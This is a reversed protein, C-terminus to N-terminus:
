KAATVAMVPPNGSLDRARGSGAEETIRAANALSLAMASAFGGRLLEVHAAAGDSQRQAGNAAHTHLVALLGDPLDAAPM